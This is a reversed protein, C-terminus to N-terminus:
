AATAPAMEPRGNPVEEVATPDVSFESVDTVRPNEDVLHLRRATDDQRNGAPEIREQGTMEGDARHRLSPARQAMPPSPAHSRRMSMSRLDEISIAVRGALGTVLVLAGVVPVTLLFPNLLVRGANSAIDYIITEM